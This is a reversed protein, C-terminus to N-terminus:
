RAPAAVAARDEEAAVGGVALRGHGIEAQRLDDDRDLVVAPDRAREFLVHGHRDFGVDLVGEVVVGAGEVDDGLNGAGVLGVSTTM